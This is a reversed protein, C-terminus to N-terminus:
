VATGLTGLPLCPGLLALYTAPQQAQTSSSPGLDHLGARCHKAGELCPKQMALKPESRSNCIGEAAWSAPPQSCQRRCAHM